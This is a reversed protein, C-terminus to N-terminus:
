PVRRLNVAIAFESVSLNIKLRVADSLIVGFTDQYSLSLRVQFYIRNHYMTEKRCERLLVWHLMEATIEGLWCVEPFNQILAPLLCYGNRCTDRSDHCQIRWTAAGELTAPPEPIVHLQIRGFTRWISFQFEVEPKSKPWIVATSMDNQVLRRFKIWIPGGEASFFSTM